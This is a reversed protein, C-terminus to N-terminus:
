RRGHRAPSPSSSRAPGVARELARRFDTGVPIDDVDKFVAADGFRTVLAGHLRGVVHESDSRRYCLFICAEPLAAAAQLPHAEGPGAIRRIPDLFYV